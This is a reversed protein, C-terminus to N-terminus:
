SPDPPVRLLPPIDRHTPKLTEFACENEERDRDNQRKNRRERKRKLILKCILLTGQPM